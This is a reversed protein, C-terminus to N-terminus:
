PNDVWPERARVTRSTFVRCNAVTLGLADPVPSCFSLVAVYEGGSSFANPGVATTEEVLV